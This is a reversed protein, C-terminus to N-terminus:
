AVKIAVVGLLIVVAAVPRRWSFREKLLFASIAMGFLIATERLAAVVAVPAETMALLVLIYAGLTCAGGILGFHWRAALHATFERRHRRLAYYAIPPSTLLFMWMTYAVPYGSRRVGTGDVLTYSAIMVANLLALGTTQGSLSHNREMLLLGLMGICILLIGIWESPVLREDILPGSAFAVLLPAAGRMLPYAHSMDGSRYSAGTLLFYAVHIVVSVAIFAWSAARPVALFPLGALSLLAAAGTVLAIDLFKSPSSKVVANWSAHMLAALLVLLFISLSM